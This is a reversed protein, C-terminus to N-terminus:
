AMRREEASSVPESRTRELSIWRFFRIVALVSEVKEEGEQEGKGQAEQLGLLFFNLSQSGVNPM